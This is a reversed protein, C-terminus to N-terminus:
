LPAEVDSLRVLSAMPNVLNKDRVDNMVRTMLAEYAGFGRSRSDEDLFDANSAVVVLTGSLRDTSDILERLLEYHDIVMAKTYHRSGDRPNRARTVRTNDLLALVGAYGAYRIWYFASEMFHRATTRNIPTHVGFHRVNSIRTNAGTLWGILPQGIYDDGSLGSNEALCLQSMAIRFDRSMKRNRAVEALISIRLEQLVFEGDLDNATAIAYYISGAASPDVGDVRLAKDEALKVIARRALMRWDLQRSIAFFIDQPMHARAHAANFEVFTYGLNQSQEALALALDNNVEEPAIAFKVSAGGDKIFSELYEKSIFQVWDAVPMTNDM